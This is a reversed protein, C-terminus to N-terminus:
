FGSNHASVGTALSLTCSPLWLAVDPLRILGLDTGLKTKSTRGCSLRDAVRECKPISKPVIYLIATQLDIVVGGLPCQSSHRQAALIVQKRSRIETTFTGSRNIAQDAALSFL